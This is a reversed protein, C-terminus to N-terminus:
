AMGARRQGEATIPLNLQESDPQIKPPAKKRAEALVSGSGKAPIHSSASIPSPHPRYLCNEAAVERKPMDRLDLSGVLGKSRIRRPAQKIALIV